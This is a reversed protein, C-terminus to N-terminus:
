MNAEKRRKDGLMWGNSRGQNNQKTWNTKDHRQHKRPKWTRKMDKVNRSSSKSGRNQSPAGITMVNSTSSAPATHRPKFFTSSLKKTDFFFHM